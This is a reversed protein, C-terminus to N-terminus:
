IGAVRADSSICVARDAQAPECLAVVCYREFPGTVGDEVPPGADGFETARRLVTYGLVGADRLADIVKEAHHLDIVIELKTVARM